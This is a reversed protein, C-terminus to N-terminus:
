RADVGLVDLLQATMDHDGPLERARRASAASAAALTAPDAMQEIADALQTSEGVPVLVAADGTVWRTGGADTAIIPMAAGLAEQLAVPQGEWVAASVVLHSDALLAPVDTRRGLLEVPAAEDAIRLELHSRLPGEGAIRVRVPLGRGTLIAVADLLTDLGKQPALRAIVLIELREGAQLPRSRPAQSADAHEMAPSDPAPIVAHRVQRAGAARARDVLDPSVALVVDARAALVRLLLRGMATVARGGVPLNHLTVVVRPGSRPLALATLAGARLGHAHVATPRTRDAERRLAAIVRPDRLPHPM